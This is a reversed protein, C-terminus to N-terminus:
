TLVTLLPLVSSTKSTKTVAWCCGCGWCCCLWLQLELQTSVFYVSLVGGVVVWVFEGIDRIGIGFGLGWNWDGIGGGDWDGIGM